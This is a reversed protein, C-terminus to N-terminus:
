LYIDEDNVSFSLIFEVWSGSFLIAFLFESTTLWESSPRRLRLRFWFVFNSRKSRLVKNMWIMAGTHAAHVIVENKRISTTFCHLAFFLMTRIWPLCYWCSMDCFVFHIDTSQFFPDIPSSSCFWQEPSSVFLTTSIHFIYSIISVYSIM